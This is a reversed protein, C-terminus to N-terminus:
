KWLRDIWGRVTKYAAPLKPIIAIVIYVLWGILVWDSLTIGGIVLSIGSVTPTSTIFHDSVNNGSM